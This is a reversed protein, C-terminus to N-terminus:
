CADFIDRVADKVSNDVFGYEIAKRALKLMDERDLGFTSAALYYENSLSTSFMGSDDTCLALPHNSKYLDVFHHDYISSVCETRVNSTLCIEVPIKLSKLSEWEAEELFCAHGIRQPHM